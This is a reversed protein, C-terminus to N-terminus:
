VPTMKFKKFYFKDFSFINPIHFYEMVVVNSCDVFSTGKQEQKMFLDFAKERLTEDIPIIPMNSRRLAAFFQRALPQGSRHSLVTITEEIVANTTVLKKGQSKFHEYIETAKQHLSDNPLYLATWGDTDVLM